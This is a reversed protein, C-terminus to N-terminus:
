EKLAENLREGLGESHTNLKNYTGLFKNQPKWKGAMISSIRNIYPIFKTVHEPYKICHITHDNVFLSKDNEVPPYILELANDKDKAIINIGNWWGDRSAKRVDESQNNPHASTYSEFVLKYEPHTILFDRNAQRVHKYNCDDVVIVAEDALYPM